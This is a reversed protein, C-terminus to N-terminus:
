FTVQRFTGGTETALQQMFLLAPENAGILLTDIPLSQSNAALIGALTDEPGPNNPSGDGVAIVRRDQRMSLEVIGLLQEAASLMMTSGYAELANVWAHAQSVRGHTARVPVESFATYTGSFAVIGFENTPSLEDLASNMEAKLMALKFGAMSGSRDLLFFFGDGEYTEGFFLIAELADEEASEGRVGGSPLDLPRRVTTSTSEAGSLLSGVFVCLCATLSIRSM